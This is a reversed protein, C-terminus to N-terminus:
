QSYPVPLDVCLPRYRETDFLTSWQEGTLNETLHKCATEVMNEKKIEQIKSVDWFQLVKLSSTMLTAGDVSFSVSNVTGTHPIRAYEELSIPNVLYVKDAAGVALLNNLPNFAMSVVGEKNIVQPDIFKGNVQQWIHIQGTSNSAALLTGDPSFILLEIDGHSIPQNIEKLTTADLIHLENEMGIALLNNTAAMATIRRGNAIPTSLLKGTNVDWLQLNGAADGSILQKEDPSFVIAQAL